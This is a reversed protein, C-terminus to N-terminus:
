EIIIIDGDMVLSGDIVASNFVIYQHGLPLTYTNGDDPISSPQFMVAAVAVAAAKVANRVSDARLAGASGSVQSYITV